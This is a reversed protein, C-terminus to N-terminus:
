IPTTQLKTEIDFSLIATIKRRNFFTSLKDTIKILQETTSLKRRFDVQIPNM